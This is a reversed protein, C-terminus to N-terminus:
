LERMARKARRKADSFESPSFIAVIKAGNRNTHRRFIRMDYKEYVVLYEGWGDVEYIVLWVNM